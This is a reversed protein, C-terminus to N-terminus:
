GKCVEEKLRQEEERLDEELQLAAMEEEAQQRQQREWSDMEAPGQKKQEDAPCRSMHFFYSTGSM